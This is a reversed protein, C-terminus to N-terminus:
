TSIKFEVRRNILRGAETTNTAIPQDEGFGISTVAAPDVGQAVLRAAASAARGESLRQNGATPGVNDTHGGVEVTWGNETIGAALQDIASFYTSNLADSNYGFLDPADLRVLISSEDEFDPNVVQEDEVSFTPFISSALELAEDAAAEDRLGGIVDVSSQTLSFVRGATTNALVDADTSARASVTTTTTTEPAATTTTEPAQTTTTTEPAATTTTTSTSSTDAEHLGEEDDAVPAATGTTSPSATETTTGDGSDFLLLGAVIAGLGILALVGIATARHLLFVDETADAIKWRLPYYDDSKNRENM